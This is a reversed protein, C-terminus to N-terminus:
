DNAKQTTIRLAFGVFDNRPAVRGGQQAALARM